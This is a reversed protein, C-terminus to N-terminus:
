KKQKLIMRLLNKENERRYYLEDTFKKIIYIGLGGVERDKIGSSLHPDKKELINFPTGSDEIEIILDDSIDKMCTVRINGKTDPYAYRIINVIAEEAAVSIRSIIRSSFGQKAASDAVSTILALLNGFDAPLTIQSLIEM